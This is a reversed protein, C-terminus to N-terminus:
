ATKKDGLEKSVPMKKIKAFCLEQEGSEQYQKSAIRQHLDELEEDKKRNAKVEEIM